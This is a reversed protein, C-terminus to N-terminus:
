QHPYRPLKHQEETEQSPGQQTHEKLQRMSELRRKRKLAESELNASTAGDNGESTVDMQTDTTM